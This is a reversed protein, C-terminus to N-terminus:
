QWDAQVSNDANGGKSLSRTQLSIRLLVTVLLLLKMKIVFTKCTIPYNSIKKAGYRTM